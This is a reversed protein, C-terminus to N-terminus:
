KRETAATLRRGDITFGIVSCAGQHLRLAVTGNLGACGAASGNETLVRCALELVVAGPAEIWSGDPLPVRGIGHAGALTELSEIIEVLSMDIGNLRGPVGDTFTVDVTAGEPPAAAVDRTLEFADNPRLRASSWLTAEDLATLGAQALPALVKLDPAVRGVDAAVREADAGSWEHAVISADEIRALEVLKAAVIPALLEGPCSLAFRGAAIAPWFYGRALEERVDLVHARVAGSALARERVGTLECGQGVDLTVTVVDADASLSHVAAAADSGGSFAQVVRIKEMM